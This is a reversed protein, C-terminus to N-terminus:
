WSLYRAKDVDQVFGLRFGEKRGQKKTLLRRSIHLIPYDAM